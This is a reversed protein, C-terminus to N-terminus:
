WSSYTTVSGQNFIGVIQEKQKYDVNFSTFKQNLNQQFTYMNWFRGKFDILDGAVIKFQDVLENQGGSVTSIDIDSLGKGKGWKVKGNGGFSYDRTVRDCKATTSNECQTLTCIRKILLPNLSTSVDQKDYVM